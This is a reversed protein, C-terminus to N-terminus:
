RNLVNLHQQISAKSSQLLSQQAIPQIAEKSEDQSFDGTDEKKAKKAEEESESSAEQKELHM